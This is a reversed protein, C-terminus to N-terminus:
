LTPLGYFLLLFIVALLLLAGVILGMGSGRSETAVPQGTNNVVTAM